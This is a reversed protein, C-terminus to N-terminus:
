HAKLMHRGKECVFYFTKKCDEDNMHNGPWGPLIVCKENDKVNNPEGRQWQLFKAKEGTTASTFEGNKALSNIDLWYYTKHLNAKLADYEFKNQPSALHAGMLRCREAADFWSLPLQNEIFYYKAGIKQFPRMDSLSEVMNTMAEEFADFKELLLREIQEFKSIFESKENMNCGEVQRQLVRTHDLVPKVIRFCYRGCDNELQISNECVENSRRMAIIPILIGILFIIALPFNTSIMAFGKAM